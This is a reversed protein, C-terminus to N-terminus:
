ASRGVRLLHTGIFGENTLLKCIDENLKFQTCFAETEMDPSPSCTSPILMTEQAVLSPAAAAASGSPASHSTDTPVPSAAPKQQTGALLEPSININIIPTSSANREQARRQLVPSLKSTTHVADFLKAHPPSDATAFEPGKLIAATWTKMHPHGLALHEGEPLVYCHDSSCKADECCWKERLKIMEDNLAKTEPDIDPKNKKAKKQPRAEDGSGHTEDPAARKKGKNSVNDTTEEAAPPQMPQVVPQKETIVLNATPDKARCARRVMEAYSAEDPMTINLPQTSIRPVTYIITFRSFVIKELHLAQDIEDSIRSRFDGLSATDLIKFFSNYAAPPLKKKKKYADSNVERGKNSGNEGEEQDELEELDGQGQAEEGFDEKDDEEDDSPVHGQPPGLNRLWIQSDDAPPPTVTVDSLSSSRGADHGTTTNNSPKPRQSTQKSGPPM